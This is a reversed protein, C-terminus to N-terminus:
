ISITDLNAIKRTKVGEAVCLLFCVEWRTGVHQSSNFVEAISWIICMVIYISM